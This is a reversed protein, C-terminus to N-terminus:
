IIMIVLVCGIPIFVFNACWSKACGERCVAKGYREGVGDHLRVDVYTIVSPSRRSSVPM